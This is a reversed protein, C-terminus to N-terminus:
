HAGLMGFCAAVLLLTLAAGIAVLCAGVIALTALVQIWPPRPTPGSAGGPLPPPAHRPRHNRRPRWDDRGSM